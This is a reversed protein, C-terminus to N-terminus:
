TISIPNPAGRRLKYNAFTHDDILNTDRTWWPPLIWGVHGGTARDDKALRPAARAGDSTRSGTRRPAHIM